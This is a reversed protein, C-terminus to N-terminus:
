HRDTRTEIHPRQGLPEAKAKGTTQKQSADRKYHNRYGIDEIVSEVTLPVETPVIEQRFPLELERCGVVAGTRQTSGLLLSM